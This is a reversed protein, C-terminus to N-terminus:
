NFGNEVCAHLYHRVKMVKLTDKSIVYSGKVSEYLAESEFREQLRPLRPRFHLLPILHLLPHLPRLLLSPFFLSLLLSLMSQVPVSFFFFFFSLLVVILHTLVVILVPCPQSGMHYYYEEGRWGGEPHSDCLARGDDAAGGRAGRVDEARHERGGSLRRKTGHRADLSGRPGGPLLLLLLFILLLLLLLLFLLFMHTHM